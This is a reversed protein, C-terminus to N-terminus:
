EEAPRTTTSKIKELLEQAQKHTPVAKLLSALDESAEAPQGLLYELRAHAFRAEPDEPAKKLAADVQDLAGYLALRRGAVATKEMVDALQLRLGPDDPRATVQKQLIQSWMSLVSVTQEILSRDKPSKLSQTQFAELAARAEDIADDSRGMEDHLLILLRRADANAPDLTLTVRARDIAAPLDNLGRYTLALNYAVRGRAQAQYPALMFAKELFPRALRFYNQQLYITGLGFDARWDNPSIKKCRNYIEVAQLVNKANLYAEALALLATTNNPEAQVLAAYSKIAGAVDGAAVAESGAQSLQEPSLPQTAAPATAPATAPVERTSAPRTGTPQTTQAAVMGHTAALALLLVLLLRVTRACIM